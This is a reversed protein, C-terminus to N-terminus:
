LTHMPGRTWIAFGINSTKQFTLIMQYCKYCLIPPYARLVHQVDQTDYFYIHGPDTLLMVGSNEIDVFLIMTATM